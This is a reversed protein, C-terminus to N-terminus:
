LSADPLERNIPDHRSDSPDDANISASKKWSYRSRFESSQMQNKRASRFAQGPPPIFTTHRLDSPMQQSSFPLGRVVVQDSSLVFQDFHAGRPRRSISRRLM